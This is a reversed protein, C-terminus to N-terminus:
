YGTPEAEYEPEVPAPEHRLPTLAHMSEFWLLADYREGMVTPVYQASEREPRYVVGIARHGLWSALWPSSRDAGFRLVADRGLARHLLDEHSESRARPVPLVREPTGWESAGIVDGEYGAMGVLAVRGPEPHRQRVLQGINVLGDAAMDTARADGVHTNHAWVVGRSGAGFHEILRDITDTMHIDRVNWSQRDGRVMTRYYLEAGAAVEANQLADFAAEDGRRTLAVERMRTLLDVVPTECDHPTLRTSWAYKQPDQGYPVFCQWALMADAVADPQNAELWGIVEALSDWLSYLDLGYFGVRDNEPRVSNWKRLWTLFEAVEANSWMWTPWRTFRTLLEAATLDQDARGRLWLNVRWCDPWDGEVGVWRVSGQAILLRTLDARRLYFEHTGHSAEGICVLDAGKLGAALARLDDPGDLPTALGRIEEAIRASSVIPTVVHGM